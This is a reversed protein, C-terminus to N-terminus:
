DTFDPKEIHTEDKYYITRHPYPIEIGKGDFALKLRKRYERGIAWQTGPKTRLRAKIVIESEGFRDLGSIEIPGLINPGHVEDQQLQAGVADMVAMVEDPDEKYAVGIDFAM